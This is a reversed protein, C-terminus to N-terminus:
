VAQQEDRQGENEEEAVEEVEEKVKKVKPRAKYKAMLGKLFKEMVASQLDLLSECQFISCLTILLYSLLQIYSLTLYLCCLTRDFYSM